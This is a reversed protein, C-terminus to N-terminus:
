FDRLSIAFTISERSEKQLVIFLSSELLNWCIYIDCAMKM